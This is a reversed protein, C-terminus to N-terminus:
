SLSKSARIMRDKGNIDKRLQIDQFGKSELAKKTEIGLAENIEFYLVGDETLSQLAFDAIANYFVMADEDPVFLATHPENDVVNMHLSEKESQRVYPPNSVIIHYPAKYSGIKPNLIDDQIFNVDTGNLEANSRAIMLAEESVDSAHVQAHPVSSKLSIPICGSGTGIDLIKIKDGWGGINDDELIWNVLEETEQRPILVHENVKFTLGCFETEGFIYQIPKGKKLDKTMFVIKLLESETFRVDPNLALFKSDYNFYHDLALKVFTRIENEPYLDGLQTLCYEYIAPLTNSKIKM